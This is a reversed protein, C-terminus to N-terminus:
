VPGTNGAPAWVFHTAPDYAIYDMSVGTDGAGPIPVMKVDYDLPAAPSIASCLLVLASISLPRAMCPPREFRMNRVGRMPRPPSECAAAKVPDSSSSWRRAAGAM